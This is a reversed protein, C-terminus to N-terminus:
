NTNKLEVVAYLCSFRFVFMGMRVIKMIAILLFCSIFPIVRFYYERFIGGQHKSQPWIDQSLQPINQVMIWHAPLDGLIQINILHTQNSKKTESFKFGFLSDPKVFDSYQIKSLSVM